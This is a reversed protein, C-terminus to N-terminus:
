SVPLSIKSPYKKSHYVSNKAKRFETDYPIPNGTNHNRAYRPFESSTIALRIKHDKKYLNCTSSMEVNFEYIEGHEMLRPESLSDRYRARLIGNSVIISRGDTHVDLLYTFWDTDPCDSNGFLRIEPRGKVLLDETLTKSTYVLFDDRRLLYRNDLPPKEASGYLDFNNSPTM